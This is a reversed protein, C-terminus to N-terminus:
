DEKFCIGWGPRSSEVILQNGEERFGGTVSRDPALLKHADLDIYHFRGIGAALCCSAAMGLRSELMCGIMIKKGWSRCLNAIQLAGLIGSKMTKINIGDVSDNQFLERVNAISQASEDAMLPVDIREKVYRLGAFDDKDVPQEVLELAAPARKTINKVFEVARDPTFAQNADIRLKAQPAGELVALIRALDQEEGDPSAVKIKLHAFGEAYAARALEAAEDPAVIPITLDTELTEEAAGFFQWLPLRWRKAWLDLLAMELGARASPASALVGGAIQMLPNLREIPHGDYAPTVTRIATIVSEVSEGTVYGVPTSSGYGLTGDGAAVVILVNKAEYATRKAVQFPAKLPLSWTNAEVKVIEM